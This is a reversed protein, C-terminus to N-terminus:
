SDDLSLFPLNGAPRVGTLIEWCLNWGIALTSRLLLKELELFIKDSLCNDCVTDLVGFRLLLISM